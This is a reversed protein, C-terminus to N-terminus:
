TGVHCTGNPVVHSQSHVVKENGIIRPLHDLYYLIALTFSLSFSLFSYSCTVQPIHNGCNEMRVGDANFSDVSMCVTRCNRFHSINQTQRIDENIEDIDLSRSNTTTELRPDPPSIDVTNGYVM